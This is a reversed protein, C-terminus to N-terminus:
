GGVTHAMTTTTNLPPQTSDHQPNHLRRPSKSSVGESTALCCHRRRRSNNDMKAHPQPRKAIHQLRQLRTTSGRPNLSVYRAIKSSTTTSGRRPNLSMHRVMKSTKSSRWLPPARTSQTPLYTPRKAVNSASPDSKLDTTGTYVVGPATACKGRTNNHHKTNTPQLLPQHCVDLPRPPYNLLIIIYLVTIICIIIYLVTATRTLFLATVVNVLCLLLFLARMLRIM